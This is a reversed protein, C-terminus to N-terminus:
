GLSWSNSHHINMSVGTIDKIVIPELVWFVVSLSIPLTLGVWIDIFLTTM